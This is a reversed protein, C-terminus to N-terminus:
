RIGAKEITKFRKQIERTLRCHLQFICNQQEKKQKKQPPHILFSFNGLFLFTSLKKHISSFGISM